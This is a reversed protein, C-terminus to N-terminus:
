DLRGWTRERSDLTIPDENTSEVFTTCGATLTLLATLVIAGLQKM